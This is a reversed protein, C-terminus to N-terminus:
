LFRDSDQLLDIRSKYDPLERAVVQWFRASHNHQAIHALEHVVVYDVAAYPALVLRWSFNLSNESSCSGWRKKAGNVKVCRPTLGMRLSYYAVRKQIVVEALRCYLAEIAPKIAEFEGHPVWFREGDFTAAKGRQVPYQKGLLMLGDDLGRNERKAARAQTETLHQEIWGSKQRVFADIERQALRLPARVVVKAEATIQIAVTKRKSRILEYSPM